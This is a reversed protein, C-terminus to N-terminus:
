RVCDDGGLDNVLISLRSVEEHLQEIEANVEDANGLLNAIADLANLEGPSPYTSVEGNLTITLRLPSNWILMDVLVSMSEYRTARDM